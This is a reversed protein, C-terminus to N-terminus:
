QAFAGALAARLGSRTGESRLPFSECFWAVLRAPDPAAPGAWNARSLALFRTAAAKAGAGDGLRQRAIAEWGHLNAIAGSAAEIEALAEEDRGALVLQTAIYGRLFPPPQTQLDRALALGQAALAHNECYALGLACSLQTLPESLNLAIAESFEREASEFRRQMLHSWALARRAKADLPDLAVAIEAHRQARMMAEAEPLLGPKFLHRSNMLAAIEAHAQAFDRERELLREIIAIAKDFADPRWVGILSRAYIWDDFAPRTSPGGTTAALIRDSSISVDVASAANRIIRNQSTRWTEFSLEVTESWLYRGNAESRLLAVFTLDPSVHCEITYDSKKDASSRDVIFWERFRSMAAVLDLRFSMALRGVSPDLGGTAVTEVAVTPLRGAQEGGNPAPQEAPDVLGLKIRRLLENTEASPEADADLEDLAACFEYYVKTAAFPEGRSWLWQMLRRAAVEDTPEVNRLARAADGHVESDAASRALLNRLAEVLRDHFRSRETRLFQDFEGSLGDLGMMMDDAPSRQTLLRAPVSGGAIEALMQECDVLIAEAVLRLERPPTLLVEPAAFELNDRLKKLTQRLSNGARVPDSSDWLLEAIVDRSRRGSPALCLYALLAKAKSNSIEVLSTQSRVVVGGILDIQLAGREQPM